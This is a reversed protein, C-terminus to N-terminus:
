SSLCWYYSCTSSYALSNSHSRMLGLGPLKGNMGVGVLMGLSYWSWHRRMLLYIVELIHVNVNHLVILRYIKKPIAWGTINLKLALDTPRNNAQPRFSLVVLNRTNNNKHKICADEAHIFALIYITFDV